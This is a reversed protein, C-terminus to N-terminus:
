WCRHHTTKRQSGDRSRSLGVVSSCHDGLRATMEPTDAKGMLTLATSSLHEKAAAQVGAAAALSDSKQDVLLRLLSGTSREKRSGGVWGTTGLNWSSAQALEPERTPWGQSASAAESDRPVGLGLGVVLWSM